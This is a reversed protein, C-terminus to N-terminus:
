TRRRCNRGLHSGKNRSRSLNGPSRPVYFRPTCFTLVGPILSIRDSKKGAFIGLIGPIFKGKGGINTMPKFAYAALAAGAKGSAASIGHGTSRWRTTFSEGPLVFTTTNPGFNFFFNALAFLIIFIIKASQLLQYYAASLVIFIITLMTFGLLQIPIRGMREILAVTVFYGPVTGMLAIFLNGTVLSFMTDYASADKPTYSVAQLIISQNLNVGYFAVDLAFWAFSCGFLIKFNRWKGFYCKFDKWSNKKHQVERPPLPAQPFSDDIIHTLDIRTDDKSLSMDMPKQFKVPLGLVKNVDKYAKATNRSVAM